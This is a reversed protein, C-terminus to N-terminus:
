KYQKIINKIFKIEEQLYYANYDRISFPLYNRKAYEKLRLEKKGLRKELIKVYTTATM